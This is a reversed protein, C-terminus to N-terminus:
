IIFFLYAKQDSCLKTLSMATVKRAHHGCCNTEKTQLKDGSGYPTGQHFKTMPFPQSRIHAQVDHPCIICILYKIVMKMHNNKWCPLVQSNNTPPMPVLIVLCWNFSKKLTYPWIFDTLIGWLLSTGLPKPNIINVCGLWARAAYLAPNLGPDVLDCNLMWPVSNSHLNASPVFVTLLITSKHANDIKMVRSTM